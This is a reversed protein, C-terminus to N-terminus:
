PLFMEIHVVADSNSLISEHVGFNEDGVILAIPKNTKLSFQNIPTSESTIELSIIYHTKKLLDIYDLIDEILKFQVAKETARSTKLMKRSPIPLDTGCFVLEDVGFADSIRFLSGINPANSVQDCVVTIPFTRKSFDTNYHKRQQM